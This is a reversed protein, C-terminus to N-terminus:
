SQIVVLSPSVGMPGVEGSSVSSSFIDLPFASALPQPSAPQCCGGGMLPAPDLCVWGGVCSAKPQGLCLDSFNLPLSLSLSITLKYALACILPRLLSHCFFCTILGSLCKSGPTLNSCSERVGVQFFYSGQSRLLM